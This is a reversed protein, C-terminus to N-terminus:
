CYPGHWMSATLVHVDFLTHPLLLCTPTGSAPVGGLPVRAYAAITGESWMLRGNDKGSM